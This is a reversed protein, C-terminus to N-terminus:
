GLAPLRPLSMSHELILMVRLPSMRCGWLMPPPQVDWNGRGPDPDPKPAALM